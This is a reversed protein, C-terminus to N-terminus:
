RCDKSRAASCLDPHWLQNDIEDIANVIEDGVSGANAIEVSSGGTARAIPGHFEDTGLECQDLVALRGGGAGKEAAFSQTRQIM